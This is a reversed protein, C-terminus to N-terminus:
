LYVIIYQVYMCMCRRMWMMDIGGSDVAPRRHVNPSIPLESQVLVNVCLLSRIHFSYVQISIGPQSNSSTIVQGILYNLVLTM